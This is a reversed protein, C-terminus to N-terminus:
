QQQRARTVLSVLQENGHAVFFSIGVILVLAGTVSAAALRFRRQHRATDDATVILPISLLVPVSTFARLTDVSHFSPNLQEAVFVAAVALGLCGAFAVLFLRLRNPATPESAPVAADLVRFQEGKQRQEMSEALQAEDYRKVLSAYYERMAEYDRSLERFEQERKPTNEVRGIYSSLAARLRQEEGKLVNLEGEGSAQAEKIRLVYPSMVPVPKTDQKRTGSDAMERELAAIESKVRVVDPYKETYITSLQRLQEMLRALRQANGDPGDAGSQIAVGEALQEAEALQKLLTERREIARQQNDSNMRLQSSLREITSLNAETQQPLEGMYRKKFESVRAEQEDLRKKVEGRQFQLFEATGAAQKERVRLNEEIYFSALTNTVQAVTEPNRGDYSLAFSITANRRDEKQEVSKLELRIDRRMREVVEEPSLRRQLDAYLNFRKVLADLRSRSLIEQSITHLRTELASTVTSKVMSEPVQQREILVTATSRYIDPVFMILSMAAVFPLAFVLIALWKRRGWVSAVMEMASGSRVAEEEM